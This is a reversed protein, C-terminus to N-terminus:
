VAELNHDIKLCFDNEREKEAHMEKNKGETNSEWKYDQM